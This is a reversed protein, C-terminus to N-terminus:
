HGVRMSLSLSAHEIVLLMGLRGARPMAVNGETVLTEGLDFLVAKIM